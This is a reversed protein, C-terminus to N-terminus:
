ERPPIPVPKGLRIEYVASLIGDPLVTHNPNFRIHGSQGIIDTKLMCDSLKSTDVDGCRTITDKVISILDYARPVSDSAPSGYISQFRSLFEPKAITLLNFITVGEALLPNETIAHDFLPANSAYLKATLGLERAQKLFSSLDGGENLMLIVADFGGGKLKTIYSKFDNQGPNWLDDSALTVNQAKLQERMSTALSEFYSSVSTALAIKKHGNKIILNSLPETMISHSPLTTFIFKRDKTLTRTYGSATLMIVKQAECIPAAVEAFEAWNPGLIFKVKDVTALKQISNVTKKLDSQNDEITLEIKQGSIGGAKNLDEVAMKIGTLESTGGIAAWGSLAYVAGIKISIKNDAFVLHSSFLLLLLASLLQKIM